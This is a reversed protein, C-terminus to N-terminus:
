RGMVLWAGLAGVGLAADLVTTYEPRARLPILALAVAGPVLVLPRAAGDGFWAAFLGACALARALWWTPGVGLVLAEAERDAADCALVNALIALGIPAADAMARALSAELLVAPLAVVVTLWALAIYAPKLGPIRRLRAHVLALAVVGALLAIAATPLTLGATAAVLAAAISLVLLGRGHDAAFRQRHPREIRDDIRRDFAYVALTGAAVTLTVRSGLTGGLAAASAHALAVAVAAVLLGSHGVVRGIEGTWARLSM